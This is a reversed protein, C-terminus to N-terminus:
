SMCVCVVRHGSVEIHTMNCYQQVSQCTKVCVIQVIQFKFDWGVIGAVRERHIQASFFRRSGLPEIRIDQAYIKPCVEYRLKM